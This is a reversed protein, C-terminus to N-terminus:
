NELFRGRVWHGRHSDPIAIDRSGRRIDGDGNRAFEWRWGRAPVAFIYDIGATSKSCELM